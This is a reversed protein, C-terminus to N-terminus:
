RGRVLDRAELVEHEAPPGDTPMGMDAMVKGIAPILRETEFTRFAEESEWVDIIEVRGDRELATHVILGPPPSNHIDMEKAVALVGEIPVGQPPKSIIVVAM